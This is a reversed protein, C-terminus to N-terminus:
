GIRAVMSTGLRHLQRGPANGERDGREGEDVRIEDVALAPCGTSM